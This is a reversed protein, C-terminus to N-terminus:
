CLVLETKLDGQPRFYVNGKDGGAVTSALRYLLTPAWVMGATTLCGDKVRAADYNFITLVEKMKGQMVLKLMTSTFFKVYPEM